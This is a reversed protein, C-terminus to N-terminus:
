APVSCPLVKKVEFRKKGESSAEAGGSKSGKSVAKSKGAAGSAADHMEVDAM